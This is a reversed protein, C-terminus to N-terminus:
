NVVKIGKFLEGDYSPPYRLLERPTTPSSIPASFLRAEATWFVTTGDVDVGYKADIEGSRIVQTPPSAAPPLDLSRVSQMNISDDRDIWYLKTGHVALAFVDNSTDIVSNRMGLSYEFITDGATLYLKRYFVHLAHIVM